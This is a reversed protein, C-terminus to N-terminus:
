SCGTERTATSTTVTLPSSACAGDGLHRRRMVHTDARAQVADGLHGPLVLVEMAALHQSHGGTGVLYHSDGTRHAAGSYSVPPKRSADMDVVLAVVHAGGQHLLAM